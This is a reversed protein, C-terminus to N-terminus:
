EPCDAEDTGDPCDTAGDCLQEALIAEPEPQECYAVETACDDTTEDQGGWCDIVGM